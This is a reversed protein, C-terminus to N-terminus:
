KTSGGREGRSSWLGDRRSGRLGDISKWKRKKNWKINEKEKLEVKGMKECLLLDSCTNRVKLAADKNEQLVVLHGAQATQYHSFLPINPSCKVQAYEGRRCQM